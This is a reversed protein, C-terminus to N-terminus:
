MPVKNLMNNFMARIHSILNQDVPTGLRHGDLQMKLIDKVEFCVTLYETTIVEIELMKQLLFELAMADELIGTFGCVIAGVQISHADRVADNLVDVDLNGQERGQLFREIDVLARNSEIFFDEYVQGMNNTM